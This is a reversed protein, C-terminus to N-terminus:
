SYLASVFALVLLFLVVRDFSSVLCKDWLIYLCCVCPFCENNSVVAFHLDFCPFLKYLKSHSEDFCDFGRPFLLRLFSGFNQYDRPLFTFPGRPLHEKILNFFFPCYIDM